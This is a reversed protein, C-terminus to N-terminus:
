RSIPLSPSIVPTGPFATPYSLGPAYFVPLSNETASPSIFAGPKGDAGLVTIYGKEQKVGANTGNRVYLLVTYVGPKQYTKLPNQYTSQTSDGFSWYWRAPIGTSTDTFRVTLPAKGSVPDATFSAIIKEPTPSPTITPTATPSQTPTITPTTTPTVTPTPGPKQVSIYSRKALYGSSQLNKAYLAVTYQGASSYTKEPHQQISRTGDGFNWNWQTPSGITTDTFRVTLPAPGSVPAATFSVQIKGPTPTVTPSTTPTVTPTITPTSTPTATPTATPTVTPSTTPTVTPSITPTPTPSVSLARFANVRGGTVTKGAFDPVPDTTTLIRNIVQLNSLSPDRAMLLGAIGSVHPAAMSTGSLYVYQNGPYTSGIQSGPAALDVSTLGWNSFESRANTDTISAVAIINSSTFSSPYQPTIDNDDGIVDSGGNGASCVVVAPSADIADKLAQSFESGGWSNSIIKAGMKNAYLVAKIANSSSGLGDSGLFKLPMIKAQWNVGVVGVGNNGVAAITGACHTGHGRDDMPDNDDNYFDWGRYDDIFGNGDDDVGNVPDAANTWINAALDPHTYDVGTDVVAIVMSSSGTTIGWAEPADIDVDVTGGTQGTNHMGWLLSYGPDNPTTAAQSPSSFETVQLDPIQLLYDPEAYVVYPSQEYAAIAKGLDQDAVDVVTLGPIGLSSFDDITSAGVQANLSAQAEDLSLSSLMDTNYKVILCGPVVNEASFSGSNQIVGTESIGNTMSPEQGSLPEASGPTFILSLLVLLIFSLTQISRTSVM